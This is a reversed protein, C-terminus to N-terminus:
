KGALGRQDSRCGSFFPAPSLVSLALLAAGNLVLGTLFGMWGSISSSCYALAQGSEGLIQSMGESVGRGVQSLDGGANRVKGTLRAYEEHRTRPNFTFTM